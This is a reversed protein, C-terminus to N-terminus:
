SFNGNDSSVTSANDLLDFVAKFSAGHLLDGHALIFREFAEHQCHPCPLYGRDDGPPGHYGSGVVGGRCQSCPTTKEGAEEKKASNTSSGRGRGFIADFPTQSIIHSRSSQMLM